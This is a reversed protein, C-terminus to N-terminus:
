LLDALGDPFKEIYAPLYDVGVHLVDALGQGGAALGTTIKDWIAPNGIDQVDVKIGPFQKTFDPVLAKMMAAPGQWSWVTIDGTAATGTPGPAAPAATAGGGCAALVAGGSALASIQLFRRRDLHAM